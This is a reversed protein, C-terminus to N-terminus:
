DAVADQRGDAGTGAPFFSVDAHDPGSAAGDRPYGAPGGRRGLPGAGRCPSVKLRPGTELRGDGAKAAAYFGPKKRKGHVDM